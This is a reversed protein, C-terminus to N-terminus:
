SRISWQQTTQPRSLSLRQQSFQWLNMCRVLWLIRVQMLSFCRILSGWSNKFFQNLVSSRVTPDSFSDRSKSTTSSLSRTVSATPCSLRIKWYIALKHYSGSLRQFIKQCVKESAFINLALQSAAGADILILDEFLRGCNLTQWFAEHQKKTSECLGLVLKLMHTLNWSINIESREATLKKKNCSM